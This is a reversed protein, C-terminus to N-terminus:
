NKQGVAVKVVKRGAKGELILHYIGPTEPMTLGNRLVSANDTLVLRGQADFLYLTAYLEAENNDLLELQKLRITGGAAVPNPYVSVEASKKGVDAGASDGAYVANSGGVAPCSTLRKGTTTTLDIYMSDRDTFKNNRISPGATYYLLSQEVVDWKSADENWRYWRCSSFELGLGNEKPDNRVVRLSHMHENVISFLEIKKELVVTYRKASDTAANYLDVTFAKRGVDHM